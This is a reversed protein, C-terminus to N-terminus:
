DWWSRQYGLDCDFETAKKNFKSFALMENMNNTHGSLGEISVRYDPRSGDVVYGHAFFIPYEEMFSLFEAISPSDNQQEELDVFDNEILWKLGELSLDSYSAIGGYYECSLVDLYDDRKQQERNM